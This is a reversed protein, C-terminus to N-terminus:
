FLQIEEAPLAASASSSRSDGAQVYLDLSGQVARMRKGLTELSEEIRNAWLNQDPLRESPPKDISLEQAGYMMKFGKILEEVAPLNAVDIHNLWDGKEDIFEILRYIGPIDAQGINRSLADSTVKKLTWGTIAWLGALDQRPSLQTLVDALCDMVERSFFKVRGPLYRLLGDVEPMLMPSTGEGNESASALRALVTNLSPKVVNALTYGGAPRPRHGSRSRRARRAM